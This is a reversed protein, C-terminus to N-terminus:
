DEELSDRYKNYDVMGALMRVAMHPTPAAVIRGKETHCPKYDSAVAVGIIPKKYQETLELLRTEIQRDVEKFHEVFAQVAAPAGMMTEVHATVLTSGGVVGLVIAADIGDDALLAELCKIHNDRDLTGVLDIPNNRSWYPPLLKDIAAITNESLPPIALGAKECADATVVGWGGGWTLIGVRNSRPLPLEAFAWALDLMENPTSAIVAGCQKFAANYIQASGAMAGTHSSAAKMGAATQGGKFVILPKERTIESAADIFERGDKLGEIYALLVKTDPDRGFYKLYDSAATAAENGSAAFKSFGIEKRQGISMMQTGLNGSQAVFAVPGPKPRVPPMMAYLSSRGCYVGMTNPGVLRMGADEAIVALEREIEIGEGGEESFGGPVVIAGKVGKDACERLIGPVVKSPVVIVALDIEDAPIEGVTRYVKREMIWEERPNVPFIDGKFQGAVINGLIIHGWKTVNKSAGIFAINRPNFVCDLESKWNDM